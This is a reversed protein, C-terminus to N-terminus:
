HRWTVSEKVGGFVLPQLAGFHHAKSFTVGAKFIAMKPMLENSKWPTHSKAECSIVVDKSNSKGQRRRCTARAEIGVQSAPIGVITMQFVRTAALLLNLLSWDKWLIYLHYVLIGVFFIMKEESCWKKRGFVQHFKQGQTELEPSPSASKPSGDRIWHLSNCGFFVIWSDHTFGTKEGSNKNTGFCFELCFPTLRASLDMSFPLFM